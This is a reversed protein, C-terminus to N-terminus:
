PYDLDAVAVLPEDALPIPRGPKVQEQGDTLIAAVSPATM